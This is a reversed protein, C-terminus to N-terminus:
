ILSQKVDPKVNNQRKLQYKGRIQLPVVMILKTLAQLLVKYFSSHKVYQSLLM